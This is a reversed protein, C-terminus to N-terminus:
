HFRVPQQYSGVKGCHTLVCLLIFIVLRIIKLISTWKDIIDTTTDELPFCSGLGTQQGTLWPSERHLLHPQKQLPDWPGGAAHLGHASSCGERSPMRWSCQGSCAASDSYCRREWNAGWGGWKWLRAWLQETETNVKRQKIKTWM